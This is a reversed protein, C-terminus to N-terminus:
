EAPQTEPAPEEVKESEDMIYKYTVSLAAIYFIIFILYICQVLSEYYFSNQILESIQDQLLTKHIVGLLSFIFPIGWLILLMIEEHKDTLEYSKKFSIKQDVAISPFVLSFRVGFYSGLIILVFVFVFGFFGFNYNFVSQAIYIILMGLGPLAVSILALAFIRLIFDTERRTWKLLGWEPVSGPGLLVVRHTTVACITYLGYILLDTLLDAIATINWSQPLFYFAALIACYILFPICLAKAMVGRHNWISEVAQKILKRFM